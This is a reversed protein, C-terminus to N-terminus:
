DVMYVDTEDLYNACVHTGDPYFKLEKEGTALNIFNDAHEKGDPIVSRERHHPFMRSGSSLISKCQITERVGISKRGFDRVTRRRSVM